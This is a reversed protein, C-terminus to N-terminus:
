WLMTAFRLVLILVGSVWGILLGIGLHRRDRRRHRVAVAVSAALLTLEALALVALAIVITAIAARAEARDSETDTAILASSGLAAAVFAAFCLVHGLVAAGFGLLLQGAPNRGRVAPAVSAVNM